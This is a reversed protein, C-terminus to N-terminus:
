EAARPGASNQESPRDARQEFPSKEARGEGRSPKESSADSKAGSSKTAM